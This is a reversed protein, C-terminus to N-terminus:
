NGDNVGDKNEKRRDRNFGLANKSELNGNMWSFDQVEFKWGNLVFRKEL